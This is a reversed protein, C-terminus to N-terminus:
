TSAPSLSDLMMRTAAGATLGHVLGRPRVSAANTVLIRAYTAILDDLFEWPDITPDVLDTAHAFSPVSALKEIPQTFLLWNRRDQDDLQEVHALASSPRLAFEPGISEP